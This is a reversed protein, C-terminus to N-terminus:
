SRKVVWTVTVVILGLAVWAREPNQMAWDIFTPMEM